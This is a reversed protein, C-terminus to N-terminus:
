ENEQKKQERRLNRQNYVSKPNAHCWHCRKFNPKPEPTEVPKINGQANKMPRVMTRYKIITGSNDCRPCDEWQDKSIQKISM